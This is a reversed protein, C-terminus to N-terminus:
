YRVAGRKRKRGGKRSGKHSMKDGLTYDDKIGEKPKAM